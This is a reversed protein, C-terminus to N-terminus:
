IGIASMDAVAEVLRHDDTRVILVAEDVHEVSVHGAGGFDASAKFRSGNVCLGSRRAAIATDTSLPASIRYAVRLSGISEGSEM